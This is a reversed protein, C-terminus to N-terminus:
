ARRSPVALEKLVATSLDAWSDVEFVVVASTPLGSNTLDRAQPSDDLEAALQEMGPNHGVLALVQVDAATEEVIQRLTRPWAEYVRGDYEPAAGGPDALEWTQRTRTATSVVVRDPVIGQRRLWTGIWAADARGRPSLERAHDDEGALEAKAHRLLVLTHVGTM